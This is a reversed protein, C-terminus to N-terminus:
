HRQIEFTGGAGICDLEYQVYERTYDAGHASKMEEICWTLLAEVAENVEISEEECDVKLKSLAQKAISHKSM